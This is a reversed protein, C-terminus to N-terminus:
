VAAPAPPPSPTTTILPHSELAQSCSACVGFAACVRVCARVCVRWCVRVQAAQARQIESEAAALQAQYHQAMRRMDAQHQQEKALSSTRLTGLAAALLREQERVVGQTCQLDAFLRRESM